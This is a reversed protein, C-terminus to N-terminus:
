QERRGEAGEARRLREVEVEVELPGGLDPLIVHIHHKQGVALSAGPLFARVGGISIDELAADELEDPAAGIKTPLKVEVREFQRRENAVM